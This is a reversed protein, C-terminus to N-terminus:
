RTKKHTCDIKGTLLDMQTYLNRGGHVGGRGNQDTIVAYDGTIQDGVKNAYRHQLKKQKIRFKESYKRLQRTAAKQCSWCPTKEKTLNKADHTLFHSDAYRMGTMDRLNADLLDIGVADLAPPYSIPANEHPVDHYQPARIPRFFNDVDRYVDPPVLSGRWPHGNIRKKVLKMRIKKNELDDLEMQPTWVPLCDETLSIIDQRATNIKEHMTCRRPADKDNLYLCPNM